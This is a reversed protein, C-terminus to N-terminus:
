ADKYTLRSYGTFIPHPVVASDSVILFFINKSSIDTGGSGKFHIKSNKRFKKNFSYFINDYSNEDLSLRKDALVQFKPKEGWLTPIDISPYGTFPGTTNDYLIDGVTPYLADFWRFVVIRMVNADGSTLPNEGTLRLYFQLTQPTIEIGSRESDGTGEPVRDMQYILPTSGVSTTWPITLQKKEPLKALDKRIMSVQKQLGRMTPRRYRRNRRYRKRKAQFTIPM